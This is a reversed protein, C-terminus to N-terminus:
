LLVVSWQFIKRIVWPSFSMSLLLLLGLWAFPGKVSLHHTALTVTSSAFILVPIYLPFLILMVLFISQPLAITLARGIAGLFVLTPIVLWVNLIMLGWISAPLYLAFILFPMMLTTVILIRLCFLILQIYLLTIFFDPTLLYQEVLGTQWEEEFLAELSLIVLFLLLIWFIPAAIQGMQVVDVGLSIPFLSVALM